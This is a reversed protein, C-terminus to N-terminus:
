KGVCFKSFINNIIEETATKGSIEGLAEWGDKVDIAILDLPLLDCNNLADDIKDKARKLAELHREETLFEGNVDVTGVAKDFIMDRLKEVNRGTKVSITIDANKYDLEKKDSKNLVVIKNTDKVLQYIEEDETTIDSADLVFLVLDSEDVVKKSLKVGLEEIKDESNRIGATDSFYFTMGNIDIAGEVIDRTTGAIDSVIAKDYNLLANLISSKGVNPKGVIGVKVGNKIVRGIRYSKIKQDLILSVDNLREKVKELSVAELDEEPFDMDADIESIADLLKDQCEIIQKTLKERYLSYGAKVKAVSESNIMDILGEASALSLKGNMFARKTFEGRDALRAGLSIIKKLIGKTIAIGGHSHFEVTDEGTFSKPAKYYVCLGFDCFDDAVIEGAYMVNPSFNEVSIKGSPKFMKKAIDLPNDGSLRIVAVGSPALATSIATILDKAM